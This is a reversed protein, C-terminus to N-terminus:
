LGEDPDKLPQLMDQKRKKRMMHMRNLNEAGTVWELNDAHNNFSDGDKHDVEIAGPVSPVFASAVLRHVRPNIRGDKDRLTVRKYTVGRRTHNWQAVLNGTITNRVLGTNSVEYKPFISVPRWEIDEEIYVEPQIEERLIYEYIRM